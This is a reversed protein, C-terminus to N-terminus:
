FILFSFNSIICCFTLILSCSLSNFIWFCMETRERSGGFLDAFVQGPPVQCSAGAVAPGSALRKWTGGGGACRRPFGCGTFGAAWVDVAWEPLLLTVFRPVRFGWINTNQTTGIWFFIPPPDRDHNRTNTRCDESALSWKGGETRATVSSCAAMEQGTAFNQCSLGISFQFRM